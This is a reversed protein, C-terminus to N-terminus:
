EARRYRDIARAESGSPEPADSSVRDDRELYLNETTDFCYVPTDVIHQGRRCLVAAVDDSQHHDDELEAQCPLTVWSCIRFCGSDTCSTDRHGRPFAM